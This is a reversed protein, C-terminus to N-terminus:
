TRIPFTRVEETVSRLRDRVSDVAYSGLLLRLPPYSCHAIQWAVEASKVASVPQRDLLWQVMRVAHRAPAHEAAYPESVTEKIRFMSYRKLGMAKSDPEDLRMHGPEILTAKIDFEAVEYLMSELLGEVAFKAASFPGLGPVGLAGATSSFILYRGHRNKRFHPITANLINITGFLNTDFQSRLDHDDQDECAGLIGLGVCNAVVDVRGWKEISKNVVSEVSEKMRVDCLLAM